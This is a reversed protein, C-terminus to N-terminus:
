NKGPAAHIDQLSTFAKSVNCSPLHLLLLYTNIKGRASRFRVHSSTATQDLFQTAQRHLLQRLLEDSQGPMPLSTDLGEKSATCLCM